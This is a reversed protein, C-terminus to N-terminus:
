DYPSWRCICEKGGRREESRAWPDPIRQGQDDLIPTGDPNRRFWGQEILQQPERQLEENRRIIERQEFKIHDLESLRHEFHEPDEINGLEFARNIREQESESAWMRSIFGWVGGFFKSTPDQERRDRARRQIETLNDIEWQANQAEIGAADIMMSYNQDMLEQRRRINDEIARTNEDFGGTSDTLRGVEDTLAASLEPALDM